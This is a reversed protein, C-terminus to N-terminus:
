VNPTPGKEPPTVPHSVVNVAGTPTGDPTTIIASSSITTAPADKPNNLVRIIQGAALGALAIVGAVYAGHGPFVTELGPESVAGAIGVIVSCIALYDSAKM